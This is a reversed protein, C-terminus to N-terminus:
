SSKFWNRNLISFDISNVIGDRNLDAKADNTFWKSNMYSWDLSNVMGDNNFDGVIPTAASVTVSVTVPTYPVSNADTATLTHTITGTATPTKTISKTCITSTCNSSTYLTVGDLKINHVTQADTTATLIYSQGLTVSATNSVLTMAGTIPTPTPSPTPTPTPAPAPNPVPPANNIQFVHSLPRSREGFATSVFLRRTASDYAVGSVIRSSIQFPVDFSWTAYPVIEWPAKTGQKVALFDAVDYAWVFSEYPYSHNGKSSSSPDYCRPNGYSDIGPPNETTGEGYCYAGVGRRGIFLVSRTGPPFVMGGM